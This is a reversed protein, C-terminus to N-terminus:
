RLYMSLDARDGQAIGQLICFRIDHSQNVAYNLTHVRPQSCGVNASASMDMFSGFHYSTVRKAYGSINKIEHHFQLDAGTPNNELPIRTSFPTGVDIDNNNTNSKCNLWHGQCPYEVWATVRYDYLSTHRPKHYDTQIEIENDIESLLSLGKELMLPKLNKMSKDVVNQYEPNTEGLILLKTIENALEIQGEPFTIETLIYKTPETSYTSDFVTAEKVTMAFASDIGSVGIALVFIVSALLATKKFNKNIM